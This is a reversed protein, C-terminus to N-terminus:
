AKEHLKSEAEKIQSKTSVFGPSILANGVKQWWKSILVLLGVLFIYFSIMYLQAMQVLDLGLLVAGPSFSIATAIIFLVVGLVLFPIGWLRSPKFNILIEVVHFSTAFFAVATLYFAFARSLGGVIDSDQGFRLFRFCHLATVNSAQSADSCDVYSFSGNFCDIEYVVRPCQTLNTQQAVTANMFYSVGMLFGISVITTIIWTSPTRSCMDICSKPKENHRVKSDHSSMQFYFRNLIVWYDNEEGEVVRVVPLLRTILVRGDISGQTIYELFIAFITFSIIVSIPMVLGVLLEVVIYPWVEKDTRRSHDEAIAVGWLVILHFSM